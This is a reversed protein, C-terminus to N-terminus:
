KGKNVTIETKVAALEADTSSQKTETDCVRKDLKQIDEACVFIIRMLDFLEM